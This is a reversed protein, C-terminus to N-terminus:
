LQFRKTFLLSGKWNDYDYNRFNSDSDFYEGTVTALLDKSGPVEGLLLQLPLGYTMRSRWRLDRRKAPGVFPDNGRYADRGYSTSSTLFQGRGLLLTYSATLAAGLYAYHDEDAFKDTLDLRLDMRQRGGLRYSGGLAVDLRAGTRDDLLSSNRTREYIQWEFSARSFLEFGRRFRRRAELSGGFSKLFDEGDLWMVNWHALPRLDAFTARYLGGASGSLAHIDLDNLEVQEQAFYSLGAELRHGAQSEIDREARLGVIGVFAFDDEAEDDEGVPVRGLFSDLEDSSPGATRNSDFQSGATLSAFYRTTKERLEIERLYAEVQRRHVAPTEPGLLRRFERESEVLDDLRYRVVAYLLRGRALEPHALLIRELTAGAGRLDDNRIQTQAWLFNLSVDDPNRLVQDYTVEMGEQLAPLLTSASGAQEATRAAQKAREARGEEQRVVDQATAGVALGLGAACAGVVLRTGRRRPAQVLATDM